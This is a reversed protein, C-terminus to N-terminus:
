GDKTKHIESVYFKKVKKVGLDKEKSEDEKKSFPRKCHPCRTDWMFYTIVGFIFAIVVSSIMLNSSINNEVISYILLIIGIYSILGTYYLLDKYFPLPKIKNTM